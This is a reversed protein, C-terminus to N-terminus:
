DLRNLGQELWVERAKIHSAAQVGEAMAQRDNRHMAAAIAVGVGVLELAAIPRVRILLDRISVLAIGLAAKMGPRGIVEEFSKKGPRGGTRREVVLGREPARLEVM